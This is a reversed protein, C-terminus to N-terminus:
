WQITQEVKRADRRRTVVTEWETGCEPCRTVEIETKTGLDEDRTKESM